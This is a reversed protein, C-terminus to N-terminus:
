CFDWFGKIAVIVGKYMGGIEIERGAIFEVKEQTEGLSTQNKALITVIGDFKKLFGHVSVSGYEILRILGYKMLAISFYHTPMDLNRNNKNREM